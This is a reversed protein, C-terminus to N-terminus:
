GGVMPATVIIEKATPDFKRIVEGETPSDVRVAIFGQKVIENFVKEVEEVTKKKRLDWELATDGNRDLIRMVHV